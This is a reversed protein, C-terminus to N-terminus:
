SSQPKFTLGFKEVEHRELPRLYQDKAPRRCLEYPPISTDANLVHKAIYDPSAWGKWRLTGGPTPAIGFFTFGEKRSGYPLDILESPHM